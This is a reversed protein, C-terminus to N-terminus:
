GQGDPADSPPPADAAEPAAGSSRGGAEDPTRPRKRQRRRRRALVRSLRELADAAQQLGATIEDADTWAAPNIRETLALLAERRDTEWSRNTIRARVLPYWTALFAMQEDPTAGELVAPVPPQGAHGEAEGPAPSSAAPQPAPAPEPAERRPRRRREPAAEIIQQNQRVADWDFVIDPYRAEIERMVDRDFLDRGVRAGGPTRFVYLVRSRQRTGERFWHMLYSTEYGRKDRLIRLFPL